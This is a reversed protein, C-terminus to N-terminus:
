IQNADPNLVLFPDFSCPPCPVCFLHFLMFLSLRDYRRGYGYNKQGLLQKLKPLGRGSHRPWRMLRCAMYDNVKRKKFDASLWCKCECKPTRLVVSTYWFLLYCNCGQCFLLTELYDKDNYRKMFLHQIVCCTVLLQNLSRLQCVSAGEKKTKAWFWWRIGLWCLAVESCRQWFNLHKDESLM